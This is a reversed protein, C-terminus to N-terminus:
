NISSSGALLIMAGFLSISGAVHALRLQLHLRKKTIDLDLCDASEIGPLSVEVKIAGPRTSRLNHYCDNTYDLMDFNSSHTIKFVPKTYKSSPETTKEVTGLHEEMCRKYKSLAALTEKSNPGCRAEAFAAKEAEALREQCEAFDARKRRIVTARLLGKHTVGKLLRVSALVTKDPARSSSSSSVWAARAQERTLGLFYGFQRHVGEVATVHLANRLAKFRKSGEIADPHFVM